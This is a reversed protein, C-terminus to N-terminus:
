NTIKDRLDINKNHIFEAFTAHPNFLSPLRTLKVYFIYKKFAGTILNQYDIEKYLLVSYKGEMLEKYSNTTLNNELYSTFPSYFDKIIYGGAKTIIGQRNFNRKVHTYPPPPQNTITSLERQRIIEIPVTSINTVTYNIKPKQGVHLTDISISNVQLFPQNISEFQNQSNNISNIQAQLSQKTIELKISDLYNSASDKIRELSDKLRENMRSDALALRSVELADSSTRNADGTKLFLLYTFFALIFNIGVGVWGIKNSTDQTKKDEPPINVVINILEKSKDNSQLKSKPTEDLPEETYETTAQPPIVEQKDKQSQNVKEEGM